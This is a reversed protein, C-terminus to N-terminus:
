ATGPTKVAKPIGCPTWHLGKWGRHSKADVGTVGVMPPPLTKLGRPRCHTGMPKKPAMVRGALPAVAMVPGRFFTWKRFGFKKVGPPAGFAVEQVAVVVM